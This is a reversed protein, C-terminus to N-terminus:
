AWKNKEIGFFSAPVQRTSGRITFEPKEFKRMGNRGTVKPWSGDSDPPFPICLRPSLPPAVLPSVAEYYGPDLRFRSALHCGHDYSM